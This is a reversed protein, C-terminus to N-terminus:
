KDGKFKSKLTRWKRYENDSLSDIDSKAMQDLKQFLMFSKNELDDIYTSDGVIQFSVEIDVPKLNRKSNYKVYDFIEKLQKTAMYLKARSLDKSFRCSSSNTEEKVYFENADIDLFAIRISKTM